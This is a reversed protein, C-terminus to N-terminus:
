HDFVGLLDRIALRAVFNGLFNCHTGHARVGLSTDYLTMRPEGGTKEAEDRMGNPSFLAEQDASLCDLYKIGQGPLALDM